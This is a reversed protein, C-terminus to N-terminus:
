LTGPVTERCSNRVMLLKDNYEQNNKQPYGESDFLDLYNTTKNIMQHDDHNYMGNYGWSFVGKM